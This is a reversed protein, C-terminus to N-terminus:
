KQNKTMTLTVIEGVQQTKVKSQFSQARALHTDTDGTMTIINMDINRDRCYNNLVICEMIIDCAVKPDFMISGASKQRNIKTLKLIMQFTLLFVFKNTKKTCMIHVHMNNEVVNKAMIKGCKACAVIIINIVECSELLDNLLHAAAEMLSYSKIKCGSFQICIRDGLRRCVEQHEKKVQAENSERDVTVRM